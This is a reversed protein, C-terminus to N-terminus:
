NISTDAIIGSIKITGNSNQNNARLKAKSGSTSAASNIYFSLNYTGPSNYSSNTNKTVLGSLVIDDAPDTAKTGPDVFTYRVSIDPYKSNTSQQNTKLYLTNGPKATLTSSSYIYNSFSGEFNYSTRAEGSLRYLNETDKTFQVDPLSSSSSENIQQDSTFEIEELPSAYASTSIAALIAASSLLAKFTKKM